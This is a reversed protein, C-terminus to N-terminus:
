DGKEFIFVAENEIVIKGDKDGFEYEEIEVPKFVIDIVGYEKVIDEVIKQDEENLSTFVEQLTKMISWHVGMKKSFNENLNCYAVSTQQITMDGNSDLFELTTSTEGGKSLLWNGTSVKNKWYKEPMLLGTEVMKQKFNKSLMFEPLKSVYRHHEINCFSSVNLGSNKLKEVTLM